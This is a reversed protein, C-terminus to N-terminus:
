ARRRGPRFRAPRGRARRVLRVVPHPLFSAALYILVRPSAPRWRLAGLLKRRARGARGALLDDYGRELHLRALRRRAVAMERPSLGRGPDLLAALIAIESRFMGELDASLGSGQLRCLAAPQDLFRFRGRRAIRLWLDYDECLRLAESFGGAAILAEKRAVVTSTIVFNGALLRLFADDRPDISPGGLLRESLVREGDWASADASVLVIGSERGAEEIRPALSGPLWRDDSDLFAIWEGEAAAIGSNRAASPGGPRDRRVVRIRGGVARAAEASRDTSGDDVVLIELDEIGQEVASRVADAVLDERNHVPIVVSVSRM